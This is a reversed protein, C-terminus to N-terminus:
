VLDVDLASGRSGQNVPSQVFSNQLLSEFTRGHFVLAESVRSIDKGRLTNEGEDVVPSLEMSASVYSTRIWRPLSSKRLVMVLLASM